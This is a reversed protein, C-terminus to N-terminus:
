GLKMAEMRRYSPLAQEVLAGLDGSVQPLDGEPGAFGTSQHVAGYWHAAWVGDDAHGGAPWCLMAPDFSLGIQDCLRRLMAQPDRRIDASDIVPGPFQEFLEAQQLFGIDELTPNEYKAAFSAMVRAPHRILYVNRMEGMWGRAIDPLMHQAMHKQYQVPAGVPGTLEAIVQEAEQPRTALIEARMPHTLGTHALYCGYFPEDVVDCDARNGFAYMMATSLNRPGSWMAIRMVGPRADGTAPQAPQREPM